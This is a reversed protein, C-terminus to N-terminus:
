VTDMPVISVTAAKVAKDSINQIKLQTLVKGTQNDKLVAGAAIVVPAGVSYLNEPLSFLRTYRESM